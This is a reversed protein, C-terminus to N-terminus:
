CLPVGLSGGTAGAPFSQFPKQFPCLKRNGWSRGPSVDMQYCSRKFFFRSRNGWAIETEPDAETEWSGPGLTWLLTERDAVGGGGHGKSAIAARWLLAAKLAAALPLNSNSWFNPSQGKLSCSPSGCNIWFHKWLNWLILHLVYFSPMSIRIWVKQVKQWPSRFTQLGQIELPSVLVRNGWLIRSSQLGPAMGEFLDRQRADSWGVPPFFFAWCFNMWCSKLRFFQGIGFPCLLEWPFIREVGQLHQDDLLYVGNVAMWAAESVWSGSVLSQNRPRVLVPGQQSSVVQGPWGAGLVRGTSSSSSDEAVFPKPQGFGAPTGLRWLYGLSIGSVPGGVFSGSAESGGSRQLIESLCCIKGEFILNKLLWIPSKIHYLSKLCWTESDVVINVIHIAWFRHQRQGVPNM